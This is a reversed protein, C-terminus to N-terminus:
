ETQTEADFCPPRRRLDDLDVGMDVLKAMHIEDAHDLKQKHLEEEHRKQQKLLDVQAEEKTTRMNLLREMAKSEEVKQDLEKQQMRRLTKTDKAKAAQARVRGAHVAASSTARQRRHAPTPAGQGQANSPGAQGGPPSAPLRELDLDIPPPSAAFGENEDPNRFNYM